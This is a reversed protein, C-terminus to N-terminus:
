EDDGPAPPERYQCAWIHGQLGWLSGPPLSGGLGREGGGLVCVRAMSGGCLGSTRWTGALARTETPWHRSSSTHKRPMSEPGASGTTTSIHMHEGRLLEGLGQAAHLGRVWDWSGAPLVPHVLDCGAGVGPGPIGGPVKPLFVKVPAAPPRRSAGWPKHEAPGGRQEEPSWTGPETARARSHSQGTAAMPCPRAGPMHAPFPPDARRPAPM